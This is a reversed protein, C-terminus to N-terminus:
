DVESIEYKITLKGDVLYPAVLEQFTPCKRELFAPGWGGCGRDSTLFDFYSSKREPAGGVKDIAFTHNLQLLYRFGSFPQNIEYGVMFSFIEAGPSKQQQAFGKIWHGNRYVPESLVKNRDYLEKLQDEKL